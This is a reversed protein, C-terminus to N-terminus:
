HMQRPQAQTDPGTHSSAALEGRHTSRPPRLPPRGCACLKVEEVPSCLRKRHGCAGAPGALGARRLDQNHGCIDLAAQQVRRLVLRRLLWGSTGLPDIGDRNIFLWTLPALWTGAFARSMFNLAGLKIESLVIAKASQLCIDLAQEKGQKLMDLSESSRADDDKKAAGAYKRFFLTDM